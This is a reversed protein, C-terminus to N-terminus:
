RDISRCRDEGRGESWINAFDPTNSPIIAHLTFLLSRPPPPKMRAKWSTGDARTRTMWQKQRVGAYGARYIKEVGKNSPTTQWTLKALSAFPPRAPSKVCQWRGAEESSRAARARRPCLSLPIRIQGVGIFPNVRSGGMLISITKSVRSEASILTIIAAYHGLFAKEPLTALNKWAGRLKVFRDLQAAVKSRM